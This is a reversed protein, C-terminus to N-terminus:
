KHDFEPRREKFHQMNIESWGRGIMGFSFALGFEDITFDFLHETTEDIMMSRVPIDEQDIQLKSVVRGRARFGCKGRKIDLITRL